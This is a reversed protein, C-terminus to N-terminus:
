NSRGADNDRMWHRALTRFRPTISASGGGHGVDNFVEFRWGNSLTLSEVWDDDVRFDEVLLGCLEQASEAVQPSSWGFITAEGEKVRWAAEFNIGWGPGGLAIWTDRTTVTAVTLPLERRWEEEFGFM